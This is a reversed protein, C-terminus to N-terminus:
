NKNNRKQRIKERILIRSVVFIKGFLFNPHDIGNDIISNYTRLLAEEFCLHIDVYPLKEEIEPSSVYKRIRWYEKRFSEYHPYAFTVRARRLADEYSTAIINVKRYVSVHDIIHVQYLRDPFISDM